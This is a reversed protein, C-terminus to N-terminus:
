CRRSTPCRSFKFVWVEEAKSVSINRTRPDRVPGYRRSPTASLTFSMQGFVGATAFRLIPWLRSPIYTSAPFFAGSSDTASAEIRYLPDEKGQAVADTNEIEGTRGNPIALCRHIEVAERRLKLRAAISVGFATQGTGRPEGGVAGDGPTAQKLYYRIRETCPGETDKFWEDSRMLDQSSVKVDLTGGSLYLGGRPRKQVLVSADSKALFATHLSSEHRSGDPFITKSSAEGVYTITLRYWLRTATSAGNGAAPLAVCAVVIATGAV